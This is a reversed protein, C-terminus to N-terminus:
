ACSTRGELAELIESVAAEATRGVGVLTASAPGTWDGYGVLHLRPELVSRTGDTDVTGEANRVRLPRLHDLAPRFGTCWIVADAPARRGDAWVVHGPEFHDFMPEAVLVGRERAARVSPVMVIDGLASVGTPVVDAGQALAKARRTAVDFLARGDVHDPMFRPPERTVWTTEAVTSVEALVQAATNGGGVVVVRRGAFEAANRYSVSHIQLGGFEAAGPRIPWFPRSWTGTASVVADARLVVDAAGVLLRGDAEDRTVGTVRVPRRVEFAYREEYAALYRRVHEATPFGDKSVPMPWGPLSSHDSPSFLRLSEWVHSWAGGAARADDLIVFDELARMGARRLHYGTALAAQGGGIVVVPVDLVEADGPDVPPPAVRSARRGGSAHQQVGARRKGM